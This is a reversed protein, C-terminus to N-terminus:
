RVLRYGGPETVLIQLRTPDPEVKQRLRYIHSELTHSTVDAKYGWVEDLLTKRQAPRDGMRYLYKLLASEKQTLHIKKDTERDTLMKTSPRFAYPGIPFTADDFQEFQRQHARIRALLVGSHFPKTVYDSAGNDLALITDADSDNSGLIIIPTKINQRRMLRCLDRGDIDPLDVALLIIEFHQDKILALVQEGTAAQIAIHGEILAIQQALTNRLGDDHDVILTTKDNNAM